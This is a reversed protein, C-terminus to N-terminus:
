RTIGKGAIHSIAPREMTATSRGSEGGRWNWAALVTRTYYGRCMVVSPRIGDLYAVCALFRDARNGYDDGWAAIDGRPPIYEKTALAKGTQGDFVTLFERGSLVYGSSNRYDAAADGIAAGEGDITGDATKCVIEARGDGDLDYVMFQTYHAGERINKGLRIQWLLDGNLRYAQLIPETTEGRQSNDRGRGVQHLVIEYEGDGDLDGVSADNPSYGTPTQLPVSLYARVLPNAPLECRQSPEQERGELVPRVFWANAKTLDASTDIYNTADALPESTLRVPPAADTVRYVDFAIGNPDDSLLRWSLFVKDEAQRIAVLGRGLREMQREAAAQQVNAALAIAGFLLWLGPTARM